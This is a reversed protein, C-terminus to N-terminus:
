NMPTTVDFTTEHTIAESQQLNQNESLPTGHILSSLARRFRKYKFAFIVPNVCLNASVLVSSTLYLPGTFDLDWGFNFMLFLTQNLTWCVLFSVFVFLLTKLAVHRARHVPQLQEDSWTTTNDNTHDTRTRRLKKYIHGFVFMMALSPLVFTVVILIISWARAIVSSSTYCYGDQLKNAVAMYLGQSLPGFLWVAVVMFVMARKTYIKIYKAPFVLAIYRECILALLNITSSTFFSWLFLQSYWVHCVFHYWPTDPFSDPRPINATLLLFLSGLFDIAAQNFIFADTITHMYPVKYIVVAVIGNGIMGLVGIITQLIELILIHVAM